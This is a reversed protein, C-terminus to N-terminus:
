QTTFVQGQDKFLAQYASRAGNLVQRVKANQSTQTEAFCVKMFVTKDPSRGILGLWMGKAHVIDLRDKLISVPMSNADIWIEQKEILQIVTSVYHEDANQRHDFGDYVSINQKNQWYLTSIYLPKGLKPVDGGNHIALVSCRQAGTEGMVTHMVAYTEKIAAFGRDQQRIGAKKSFYVWLDWGVKGLVALVGSSGLIALIEVPENQM